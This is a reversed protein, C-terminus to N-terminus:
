GCSNILKMLPFHWSNSQWGRTDTNTNNAKITKCKDSIILFLQFKGRILFCRKRENRWKEWKIFIYIQFILIITYVYLQLKSQKTAVFAHLYFSSDDNEQEKIDFCKMQKSAILILHANHKLKYKKSEENSCVRCIRAYLCKLSHM